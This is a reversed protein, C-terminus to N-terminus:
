ERAMVLSLDASTGAVAAASERPLLLSVVSTGAGDIGPTVAVV